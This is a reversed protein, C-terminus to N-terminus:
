VVTIYITESYSTNWDLSIHIPYTGATAMDVESTDIIVNDSNNSILLRYANSLVDSDITIKVDNVYIDNINLDDGVNYSTQAKSIYANTFDYELVNLFIIYRYTRGVKFNGTSLNTTLEIDRNNQMVYFNMSVNSNSVYGTPGYYLCQSTSSRIPYLANFALSQTLINSITQVRNKETIGYPTLSTGIDMDYILMTTPYYNNAKLNCNIIPATGDFTFTGVVTNPISGGGSVNVDVNAYTTIDYVGNATISKTGTPTIGGSVAVHANAYSTVDYDGNNEINITGTPLLQQLCRFLTNPKKTNIIGM